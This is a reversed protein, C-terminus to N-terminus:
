LLMVATGQVLYQLLALPLMNHCHMTINRYQRLGSTTESRWKM